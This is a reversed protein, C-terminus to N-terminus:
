HMFRSIRSCSVPPYNFVSSGSYCCSCPSYNPSTVSGPSFTRVTKELEAEKLRKEKARRNQFWIKIQTETLNLQASLESRENISLYQKRKFKQELTLLQSASFPTRPKRNAKHKRLFCKSLDWQFEITPDLERKRSTNTLLTPSPVKSEDEPEKLRDNIFHPPRTHFPPQIYEVPPSQRILTTKKTPSFNLLYDISFPKKQRELPPSPSNVPSTSHRTVPSTSHRKDTTPSDRTPSDMSFMM